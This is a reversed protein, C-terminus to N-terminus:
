ARRGGLWLMSPSRARFPVSPDDFNAERQKTAGKGASFVDRQESLVVELM